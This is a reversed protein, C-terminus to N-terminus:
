GPIAQAWGPRGVLRFPHGAPDAFVDEGDLKERARAYAVLKGAGTQLDAM